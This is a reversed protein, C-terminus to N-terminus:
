DKWTWVKKPFFTIQYSQHFIPDSLIVNWPSAAPRWIASRPTSVYLLIDFANLLPVIWFILRIPTRKMAYIQFNEVCKKWSMALSFNLLQGTVSSMIITIIPATRTTIVTPKSKQKNLKWIDLGMKVTLRGPQKIHHVHWLIGYDFSTLLPIRSRLWRFIQIDSLGHCNKKWEM